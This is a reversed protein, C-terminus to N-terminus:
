SARKGKTMRVHKVMGDEMYKRLPCERHTHASGPGPWPAVRSWVEPAARHRLLPRRMEPPRGRVQWETCLERQASIGRLTGCRHKNWCNELHEIPTGKYGFLTHQHPM